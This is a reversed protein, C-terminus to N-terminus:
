LTQVVKQHGKLKKRKPDKEEEEEPDEEPDEELDEELKVESDREPSKERVLRDCGALASVRPMVLYADDCCM